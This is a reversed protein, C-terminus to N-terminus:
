RVSMGALRAQFIAASVSPARWGVHSPMAQTDATARRSQRVIRKGYRPGCSSHAARESASVSTGPVIGGQLAPRTSKRLHAAVAVFHRQMRGDPMCCAFPIPV